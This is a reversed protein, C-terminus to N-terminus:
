IFEGYWYHEIEIILKGRKVMPEGKRKRLTENIDETISGRKKNRTVAEKRKRKEELNKKKKTEFARM